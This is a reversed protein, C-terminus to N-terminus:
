VAYTYFIYYAYVICVCVCVGVCLSTYGYVHMYMRSCQCAYVAGATHIGTSDCMCLVVCMIYIDIKRMDYAYITRTCICTYNFTIVAHLLLMLSVFVCIRQTNRTYLSNPLLVYMSKIHTCNKYNFVFAICM